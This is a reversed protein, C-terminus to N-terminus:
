FSVGRALNFRIKRDANVLNTLELDSRGRLLEFGALAPHDEPVFSADFRAIGGMHAVRDYRDLVRNIATATILSLAPLSNGVSIHTPVEAAKRKIFPGKETPIEEFPVAQVHGNAFAVFHDPFDLTAEVFYFPISRALAWRIGADYEPYSNDKPRGYLYTEEAIITLRDGSDAVQFPVSEGSPLVGSLRRDGQRSDDYFGTVMSTLGLSKQLTLAKIAYREIVPAVNEPARPGRDGEAIGLFLRERAPEAM